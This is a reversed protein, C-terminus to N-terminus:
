CPTQRCAGKGCCSHKGACSQYRIGYGIYEDHDRGVLGHNRLLRLKNALEESNTTIIGGDGWVNLNKLPHFSFCAITGLAGSSRGKYTAKIAHCADSVVPIKYRAAIGEISDMECPNGSWHVPMIAKTNSTIKEEIKAPNINFDPGVDVFVPKAGATVISGITAYFTFPTTIVEDGRDIGLSKLSLFLADTGSGVAIAYQTECLQAYERELLDVEAGLTFDGRIVVERIKEWIVDHDSFQQQLYNHNIELKNTSQYQEPLFNKITM